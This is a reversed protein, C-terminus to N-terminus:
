NDIYELYVENIGGCVMGEDEVDRFKGTMDVRLITNKKEKFLKMAMNRVEAEMCGGGITGISNGNELFVMKTGIDCPSSGKRLVITALVKKDNNLMADIVEESFKSKNYETNKVSIIKGLISVAIEEPTYASIPIGIPIDISNLIKEDVGENLLTKKTNVARYSSSMMGLYGYEKKIIERLCDLDYRHGRTLIVFYKNKGGEVFRIAQSFDEYIVEDAGAVKLQNVFNLRDEIAIVNIKLFKALKVVAQGVYGGGCVIIQDNDSLPEVFYDKNNVKYLGVVSLDMNNYPIKKSGLFYEGNLLLLKDTAIDNIETILTMKSKDDNNKIAKIFENNLTFNEM